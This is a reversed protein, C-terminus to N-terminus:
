VTRVRTAQIQTSQFVGSKVEKRSTVAAAPNMKTRAGAYVFKGVNTVKLGTSISSSGDADFADEFAVVM